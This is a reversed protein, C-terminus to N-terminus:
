DDSASREPREGEARELRERLRVGREVERTRRRLEVLLRAAHKRDLESESEPPDYHVIREQSVRRGDALTTQVALRNEGPVLEAFGDFGGDPFVRVARAPQGTTVNQIVLRRPAPRVPRLDSLLNSPRGIPIRECGTAHALEELFALDADQGLALTCVRIERRALAHALELSRHQAWYERRDEPKENRAGGSPQTPNGDSFLAIMRPREAGDISPTEDLMREARRLARVMNTGSRDEGVRVEDISDIAQRALHPPGIPALVRPNGSYTLLGVRNRRPALGDILARAGILEAQVITDDPDTTWSRSPRAWGGGDRAWRKTEGRVGDRDVDLGSALLASSSLDLVVVVDFGFLETRGARGSVEVFPASLRVLEGDRPTQIQLAPDAVQGALSAPYLLMCGAGLCLLASVVASRAGGRGGSV